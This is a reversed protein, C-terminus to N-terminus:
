SYVGDVLLSMSAPTDLGIDHKDGVGNLQWQVGCATADDCGVSFNVLAEHSPSTWNESLQLLPPTWDVWMVLAQVASGSNGAEDVAVGSGVHRGMAKLRVWYM